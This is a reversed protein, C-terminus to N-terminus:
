RVTLSYFFRGSPRKPILLKHTVEALAHVIKMQAAERAVTAVQAIVGQAVFIRAAVLIGAVSTLATVARLGLLAEASHACRRATLKGMRTKIIEYAAPYKAFGMGMNDGYM